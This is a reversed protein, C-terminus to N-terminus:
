VDEVHKGALAERVGRNMVIEALHSTARNLAETKQIRGVPSRLARCADNLHSSRELSAIREQPPANSFYDPHFQRSLNRFRRELDRQDLGLRRPVGLFAFYDGLRGLALIRNCQRCFHEDVPAGAGCHRCELSAESRVPIRDPTM